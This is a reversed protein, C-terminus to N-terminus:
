KELACLLVLFEESPYHDALSGHVHTLSHVWLRVRKGVSRYTNKKWLDHLEQTRVRKFGSLQRVGNQIDHLLGGVV